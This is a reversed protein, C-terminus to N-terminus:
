RLAEERIQSLTARPSIAEPDVRLDLLAPRGAAVAREFAAELEETREVAEGYAGFAEAYAVFDPSTIDTASVSRGRCLRTTANM